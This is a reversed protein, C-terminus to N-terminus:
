VRAYLRGGFESVLRDDYEDALRAVQSVIQDVEQPDLGALPRESFVYVVDSYVGFAANALSLNMELLRRYLPLLGSAPLHMVPSLVKLQGAGDRQVLYIEVIASGRRFTWAFGETTALRAQDPNVGIERLINQVLNAYDELRVAPQAPPKSKGRNFM